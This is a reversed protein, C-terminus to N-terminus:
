LSQAFADAGAIHPIVAFARLVVAPAMHLLPFFSGPVGFEKIMQDRDLM